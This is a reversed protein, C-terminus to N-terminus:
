WDAGWDVEIRRADLDVNRVVAAVFPLMRERGADSLTMVDQAGSSFMEKVVGLRVGESNVVELGVLDAWYYKGEEPEPLASRPVAVSEGKLALAAERSEVGALKALLRGSHRRRSQVAYDVGGIWWRGVAELVEVEGTVALWGRVGFSGAM